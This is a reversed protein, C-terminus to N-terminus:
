DQMIRIYSKKKLEDLWKVLKGQMKQNYIVQHISDGVEALGQQSPPIIKNLKFIYYQDEIFIPESIDGPKLKFIVAEVDQKLQGPQIDMKDVSLSYEQGAKVFDGADKLNDRIQNATQENDITLLDCQRTEPTNFEKTYKQYFDTVEGPNVIIKDKVMAEVITQMFMQDKIKAEIDAPVLGQAKLTDCFVKDSIYRRKIAHVKAKIRNEDIKINQRKAEQLILRDEILRTLMDKRLSNIKEEVQTQSYEGSMQIRMFNEFDDVDKQTIIDNNVVAAIKDQAFCFCSALLLFGSFLFCFSKIKKQSGVELKKSRDKYMM